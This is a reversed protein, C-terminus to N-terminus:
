GQGNAGLGTHSKYHNGWPMASNPSPIVHRRKVNNAVWDYLSRKDWEDHCIEQGNNWTHSIMAGYLDESQSVRIVILRVKYNLPRLYLLGLPESLEVVYRSWFGLIRVGDEPGLSVSRAFVSLSNPIDINTAPSEFDPHLWDLAQCSFKPNPRYYFCALQNLFALNQLVWGTRLFQSMSSCLWRHFTYVHHLPPSCAIVPVSRRSSVPVLYKDALSVAQM